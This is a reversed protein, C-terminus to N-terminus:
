PKKGCRACAIRMPEGPYQDWMEWRADVYVLKWHHIGFLCPVKRLLRRLTYM